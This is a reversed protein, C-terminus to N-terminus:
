SLDTKPENELANQEATSPISATFCELYSIGHISHSLVPHALFFPSNKLTLLKAITLPLFAHSIDFNLL